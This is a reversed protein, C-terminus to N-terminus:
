GRVGMTAVEIITEVWQYLHLTVERSWNAFTGTIMSVGLVGMVSPFVLVKRPM